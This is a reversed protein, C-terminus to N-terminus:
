HKQVSYNWSLTLFLLQQLKWSLTSRMGHEGSIQTEHSIGVVDASKM